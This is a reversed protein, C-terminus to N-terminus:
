IARSPIHPQPQTPPHHRHHNLPMQNVALVVALSSPLDHSSSALACSVGELAKSKDNTGTAKLGGGEKTVIFCYFVM